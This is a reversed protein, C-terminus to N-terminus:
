LKRGRCMLKDRIQCSQSMSVVANGHQLHASKQENWEIFMPFIFVFTELPREQTFLVKLSFFKTSGNMLHKSVYAM